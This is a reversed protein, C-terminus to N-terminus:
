CFNSYKDMLGKFYVSFELKGAILKLRGSTLLEKHGKAINKKSLEVLDPIHEIGVVRGTPGVMIAMCATLYGSGSGIDLATAGEKLQNKLQQLAYGHM